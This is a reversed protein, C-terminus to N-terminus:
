TKKSDKLAAANERAWSKRKPSISASKSLNRRKAVEKRRLTMPLGLLGILKMTSSFTNNRSILASLMNTMMTSLLSSLLTMTNKFAAGTGCMMKKGTFM